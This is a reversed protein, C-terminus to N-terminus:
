ERLTRTRELTQRDSALQAEAAALDAREVRDEIQVLLQGESIRDNAAFNLERVIGATEVAVDIGRAASITGVADITPTWTMPEVTTASVTMTPLEMNAFFDQIAKARFLNFGVLGGGVLILLIIAIIFRKLM